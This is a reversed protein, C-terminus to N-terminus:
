WLALGTWALQDRMVNRGRSKLTSFLSSSRANTWVDTTRRNLLTQGCGDGVEIFKRLLQEADDIRDSPVAEHWAASIVMTTEGEAWILCDYNTSGFPLLFRVGDDEMEYALEMEDLWSKVVSIIDSM